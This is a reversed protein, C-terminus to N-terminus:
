LRGLKWMKHQLTGSDKIEYNNVRWEFKCHNVQKTRNYSKKPDQMLEWLEDIAEQLETKKQLCVKNKNSKWQM